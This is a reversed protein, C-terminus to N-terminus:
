EEKYRWIYGGATKVNRKCCQVINSKSIHTKEGAKTISVFENIFNMNADYQIVKKCRKKLWYMEKGKNKWYSPSPPKSNGLKYAHKVNESQTCWELNDVRNDNRIANIHNVYPKNMPNLVFAELVLRHVRFKKTKGKKSLSVQCYGKGKMIEQKLIRGKQIYGGRDTKRYHELSRVRGLNSVQYYGEYGEIDKWIEEM